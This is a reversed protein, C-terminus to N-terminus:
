RLWVLFEARLGLAFGGEITSVASDVSCPGVATTADVPM